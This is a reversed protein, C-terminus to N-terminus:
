KSTIAQVAEKQRQMMRMYRKAYFEGRATIKKMEEADQMKITAEAFALDQNIKEIERYGLNSKPLIKHHKPPPQLQIDKPLTGQMKQQQYKGYSLGLVKAEANERKYREMREKKTEKKRKRKPKQPSEKQSM